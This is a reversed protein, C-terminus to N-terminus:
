YPSVCTKITGIELLGRCSACYQWVLMKYRKNQCLQGFAMSVGAIIIRPVCMPKFGHPDLFMAVVVDTACWVGANVFVQGGQRWFQELGATCVSDRAAHCKRACRFCFGVHVLWYVVNFECYRRPSRCTGARVQSYRKWALSGCTLGVIIQLFWITPLVTQRIVTSDTPLTAPLLSFAGLMM